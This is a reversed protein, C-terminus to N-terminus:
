KVELLEEGPVPRPCLKYTVFGISHKRDNAGFRQRMAEPSVLGMKWGRYLGEFIEGKFRARAENSFILEAETVKLYQKDQWAKRVRFYRLVDEAVNSELPIAVLLVELRATDTHVLAIMHSPAADHTLEPIGPLRSPRMKVKMHAVIIRWEIRLVARHGASIESKPRRSTALSMQALEAM